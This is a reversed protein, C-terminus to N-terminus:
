RPPPCSAYDDPNVQKCSNGPAPTRVDNGTYVHLTVETDELQEGCPSMTAVRGKIGGTRDNSVKVTFNDGELRRRVTDADQGIMQECRIFHTKPQPAAPAATTTKPKTQKPTPTRSATTTAASPLPSALGTNDTNGHLLLWGGGCLLLVISIGLVAWLGANGGGKGAPAARGSGPATAPAYTPDVAPAAPVAAAGRLYQGQPHALPSTAGTPPYSTGPM